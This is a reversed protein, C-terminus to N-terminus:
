RALMVLMAAVALVFVWILVRRITPWHYVLGGWVGPKRTRPAAQEDARM